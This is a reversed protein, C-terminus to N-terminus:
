LLLDYIFLNGNYFHAYNKLEPKKIFSKESCYYINFFTIKRGVYNESLLRRLLDGLPSFEKYLNVDETEDKFWFVLQVISKM